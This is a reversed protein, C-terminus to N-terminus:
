YSDAMTKSTLYDVIVLILVTGSSIVSFFLLNLRALVVASCGCEACRYLRAFTFYLM